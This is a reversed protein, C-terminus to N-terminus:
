VGGHSQSFLGSSSVVDVATETFDLTYDKGVQLECARLVPPQPACRWMASRGDCTSCLAASRRSGCMSYLM